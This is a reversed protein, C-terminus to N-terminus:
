ERGDEPKQFLWWTINDLGTAFKWCFDYSILKVGWDNMWLAGYDDRFLDVGDRYAVRQRAPSFYEACLIYKRSVRYIEKMAFRPDALHILVGYTFVLDFTNAAAEIKEATGYIFSVDPPIQHAAITNPELAFLQKREDLQGIAMLNAGTGAGVELITQCQPLHPVNRWLHLRHKVEEYIPNQRTHYANGFEGKWAELQSHM